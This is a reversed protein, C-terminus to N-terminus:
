IVKEAAEHSLKMTFIKATDGEVREYVKKESAQKAVEELAVELQDSTVSDSLKVIYCGTTAAGPTARIVRRAHSAAFTGLACLGFFLLLFNM